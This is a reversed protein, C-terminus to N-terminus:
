GAWPALSAIGVPVPHESRTPKRQLIGTYFACGMMVLAETGVNSRHHRTDRGGMILQYWCTGVQVSQYGMHPELLFKYVKTYKQLTKNLQTPFTSYVNKVFNILCLIVSGDGQIFGAPILPDLYTTM